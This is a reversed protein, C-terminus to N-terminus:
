LLQGLQAVGWFIRKLVKPVRHQPSQLADGDVPHEEEEKNTECNPRQKKDEECDCKNGACALVFHKRENNCNTEMENVWYEIAEFSVAHQLDFVILAADADRYYLKMM